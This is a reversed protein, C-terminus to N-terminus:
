FIFKKKEDSLNNLHFVYFGLSFVALVTFIHWLFHTGQSLWDAFFNETPYDLSRFMLALCLLLISGVALRWKYFSTKFLILIVPSLFAIGVFLYLVNPGMNTFHLYDVVLIRALFGATYISVLITISLWLKSTVKYWFYSALSLSMGAAPLTDLYFFFENSRFAHYLTSGLGNLFLLPLLLLFIFHKRYNGKLKIVWYVIPVFFLLSSYANWPEKIANEAVFENYFPGGDKILESRIAIELSDLM